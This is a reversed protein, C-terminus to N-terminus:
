AKGIRSCAWNAEDGGSFRVTIFLRDRKGDIATASSGGLGGGKFRTVGSKASYAYTGVKGKGQRYRNKGLLYVFGRAESQYGDVSFVSESCGYKGPIPPGAPAEAALASGAVAGALAFCALSTSLFSRTLNM